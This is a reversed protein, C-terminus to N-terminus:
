LSYQPRESFNVHKGMVAGNLSPFVPPGWLTQGPGRPLLAPGSCWLPVKPGGVGPLEWWGERVCELALYPGTGM